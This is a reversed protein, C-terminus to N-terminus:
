DLSWNSQDLFDEKSRIINSRTKLFADDEIIIKDKSDKGYPNLMININGFRPKIYSKWSELSKMDGIEVSTGDPAPFAISDKYYPGEQGNPQMRMFQVKNYNNPFLSVLETFKLQDLSVVKADGYLAKLIGLFESDDKSSKFREDAFVNQMFEDFGNSSQMIKELESFKGEVLTNLKRLQKRKAGNHQQEKKLNKTGFRHMNEILINKINKKNM